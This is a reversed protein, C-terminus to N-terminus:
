EIWERKIFKIGKETVWWKKPSGAGRQRAGDILGATACENRATAASRTTTVMGLNLLIEDIKKTYVGSEEDLANLKHMRDLVIRYRRVKEPRKLGLITAMRADSISRGDYNMIKESEDKHKEKVQSLFTTRMEKYERWLKAPPHSVDIAVIRGSPAYRWYQWKVENSFVDVVKQRLVIRSALGHGHTDANSLKTGPDALITFGARLRKEGRELELSTAITIIGDTRNLQMIDALDHAERKQWRRSSGGEQTGLDDFILVTGPKQRSTLLGIFKEVTFCVYELKFDPNLLTAIRLAVASKGAGRKQAIFIDWSENRYVVDNRIQDFINMTNGIGFDNAFTPQYM